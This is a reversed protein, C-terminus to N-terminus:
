MRLHRDCEHLLKINPGFQVPETRLKLNMSPKCIALILSVPAEFSSAKLLEIKSVTKQGVMM